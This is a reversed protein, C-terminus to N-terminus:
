NLGVSQVVFRSGLDRYNQRIREFLKVPKLAAETPADLTVRFM